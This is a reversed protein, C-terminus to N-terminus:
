NPRLSIIKFGGFSEIYDTKQEIIRTLAEFDELKTGMMTESGEVIIYKVNYIEINDILQKQYTRFNRTGKLPYTLGYHFWLSPSISPRKTLAYLISTDGMLYFNGEQEDLFRIINELDRSSFDYNKAIGWFMFSLQGDAHVSMPEQLREGSFIFNLDQVIRTANVNFNFSYADYLAFVAIILSSIYILNRRSMLRQDLKFIKLVTIHIIGLSIFMYPIGNEPQNHTLMGFSLCIILLAVSLCVRFLIGSSQLIKSTFRNIDIGIKYHLYSATCTVFLLSPGLTALLKRGQQVGLIGFVITFFDYILVVLSVTLGIILKHKIKFKRPFIFSFSSYLIITLLVTQFIFISYMHWAKVIQSTTRLFTIPNSLLQIREQGVASPLDFAYLSVLSLDLQYIIILVFMSILCSICSLMFGFLIQYFDQMKIDSLLIVAIVPIAFVTPMQKSLFSMVVILPTIFCLILKISGPRSLRAKTAVFIALLTFFFAHQDMYPVGFPPYFVFASLLGYFFSLFKGAGLTRLFFYVLVCFVANFIAAHLCYAFWNLGFIKFFITQLIIPTIGNPTTFDKYPVQGSLLRWAGDFIISQDLPMFGIRGYFLCIFLGFSLIILIITADLSYSQWKRKVAFVMEYGRSASALEGTVAIDAIM